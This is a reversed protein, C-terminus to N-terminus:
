IRRINDQMIHNMSIENWSFNMILEKTNMNLMLYKYFIPNFIIKTRTNLYKKGLVLDDLPQLGENFIYCIHYGYGHETSEKKDCYLGIIGLKYLLYLKDENTKYDDIYASEIGVESLNDYFSKFETILDKKEFNQLVEDINHYLNRYEKIFESEIIDRANKTLLNKILEQIVSEDLGQAEKSIKMIVAFNTLIDRPRWFSLRLIYNFLHIPYDYGGINVKIQIPINPLFNTIIYNFRDLSPSDSSPLKYIRELRKLLMYLLDYADWSLCCYNRKISDRDYDKIEDYRDQPIIICFDVVQFLNNLNEEVSSNKIKTILIMLERYFLIEFDRRIKYESYNENKYEQTERRFDESHPDFGDLALLIKKKCKKVAGCFNKFLQVGLFDILIEKSSFNTNASTILTDINANNYIGSNLHNYLLESALTFIHIKYNDNDLSEKKIGMKKKLKNLAKSFIPYRDDQENIRGKETEISIDYLCKLFLFIEWFVELIRPLTIEDLSSKYKKIIKEYILNLNISEANIPTTMKYTNLYYDTDCYRITELLTSKGSGKRGIVFYANQNIIVNYAKTKIICQPHMKNDPNAATKVFLADYEESFNKFEPKRIWSAVDAYSIAEKILKKVSADLANNLVCKKKRIVMKPFVFSINEYINNSFENPVSSDKNGSYLIPFIKITKDHRIEKILEYERFVGTNKENEIIKRKYNESCFMIIIDSARIIKEKETIDDGLRFAVRDLIVDIMHNSADEIETKLLDLFNAEVDSWEYSIFCRAKYKM